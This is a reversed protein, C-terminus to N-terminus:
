EQVHNHLFVASLAYPLDQCVLIYPLLLFIDTSSGALLSPLDSIENNELNLARYVCGCTGDGLEEMVRYKEM